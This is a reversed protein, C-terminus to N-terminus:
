SLSPVEHKSLGVVFKLAITVEIMLWQASAVSNVLDQLGSVSEAILITDDAYRMNNLLKGNLTIGHPNNDLAESFISDAYLNFLLPSLICGQRVGRQIEIHSSLKGNIRVNACQNWYLNRIFRCDKYDLGIRELVEMLKVHQVKDFAKEYDIFCVFVDKNMDWCRQILVQYGFLADRTGLGSRFGFQTNSLTAECKSYIRNHIVKLFLKLVHSMLSITRYESCKKPNKVKPIAVFTSKLWDSPITGSDYIANFLNTIYDLNCEEIEKILEIPVEDPGVAKGTKAKSIVNCIEGKTISPGMDYCNFDGPDPRRDRFLEKVYLEWTTLLDNICTTYKGDSKLIAMQNRGQNKPTILEKIKKHMGFSDYKKDLDEIESCLNGYWCEKAQRIKERILAQITDYKEKNTKNERRTEMLDLIEDTIWKSKKVRPTSAALIKNSANIISTKLTVWGQETNSPDIIDNGQKLKCINDNIAEHLEKRCELDKLKDLDIKNSTGRRCIKKLNVRIVAVVPNHDSGIDAGPYTKASKISNRHRKSILLYDIQNRVIKDMKDAPSRWTYLRRPPLKFFTNAVIFDHEQCFQVLREGRDNRIGLGFSGVVDSVAGQGVKSNFDGTVITLENSKTLKLAEEIQSYFRENLEDSKDATPAYTQIININFPKAYLQILMVRDSLPLFNRVCSQMKTRLLVAVGYRHHRSDDSGSFYITADGSTLTGSGYWRLDSIGLIDLEMRNWTAIKIASGSIRLVRQGSLAQRPSLAMTINTEAM